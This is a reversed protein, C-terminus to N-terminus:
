RKVEFMSTATVTSGDPLLASVRLTHAGVELTWVTWPATAPVESVSVGDIAFTLRHIGGAAAARLVLQQTRLEPALYVTSGPVPAVVRLADRAPPVGDTKLALGASRAWDRADTPPDVTIRGETDRGYYREQASPETGAVFLERVPSPCDPGPLLGTPSCVTAEVIGAPRAFASMRHVLAAAMMTDRWIPGAADVGAVNLMPSGDANGVWVGVAIEPTYGLTWDDRFGTSTGSKVAAAFPLEFPTVGGFGPIRADPDSLIDTLLYAREASLVRVPAAPAREYLVRGAGDRVRAVAFPEAYRGGAGLAAYANALDLLRVEGGGLTLGLGYSEVQSLTGLGFRHTMELMADLGLADLTRVAPVNLSSALAIRLPVVGHFSRDFDLPAYPGNATPFSTAVDLLATAPTFGREFAAAYLFPKLASGPQRPSLAMDIDGGHRPDGDTASGVFALIRGSGPEIAVLAADTVNRDRFGDLRIRILREAERQLGADLTTEVVLGDRGALDPRTRALEALAFRVFQHAIPPGIAPLVDIPEATAADAEGKSIWGDEVMRALVYAQRTRAATPDNAPDYDSPRQPLGALYAAHALDLNGAGIGFYVRSAAEIGYAGRGYYVDNLYLELIERKSRNAELQLAVLAEHAKRAARPSADDSLYLRRALQQTITSAGSPQSGATLAARAISVPDLGPHQQFRRDEAAITAQLMRPAVSGLAIPIRLGSRGDRELVNGRADLVLTGPLAGRLEPPELPAFRAYGALSLSAFGLAIVVGRALQARM